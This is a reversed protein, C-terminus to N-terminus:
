RTRTKRRLRLRARLVRREAVLHLAVVTLLFYSSTAHWADQAPVGAWRLVGTGTMAVAGTILAAYWFPKRVLRTRRTALHAAVVAALAVGTVLHALPAAVTGWCVLLLVLVPLDLLLATRM